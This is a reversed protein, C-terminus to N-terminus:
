LMLIEFFSKQYLVDLHQIKEFNVHYQVVVLCQLNGLSLQAFADGQGAAKRYWVVSENLDQSVHIGYEFKVGLEFQADAHGQDAAKQNWIFAEEHDRSVGWGGEHMVGLNYQAGAHGKEAAKRYWVFVNSEHPCPRKSLDNHPTM